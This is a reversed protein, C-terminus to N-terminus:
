KVFVFRRLIIIFINNGYKESFACGWGLRRHLTKRFVASNESDIRVFIADVVEIVTDKFQLVAALPVAADGSNSFFQFEDGVFSKDAM